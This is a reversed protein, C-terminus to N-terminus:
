ICGDQSALLKLEHKKGWMEEVVKSPKEAGATFSCVPRAALYIFLLQEVLHSFVDDASSALLLCAPGDLMGLAARFVRPSAQLANTAVTRINTATHM